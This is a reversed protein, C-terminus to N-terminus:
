IRQYVHTSRLHTPEETPETTGYFWSKCVKKPKIKQYKLLHMVHDLWATNPFGVLIEEKNKEFGNFPSNTPENKYAILPIHLDQIEPNEETEIIITTPSAQAISELIAFHDHVHYLLGCLFVTDTDQCIETNSEYDHLDILSSKWKQPDIQLIDMGEEALGISTKRVDAFTLFKPNLNMIMLAFMGYGCALDVVKKDKIYEANDLVIHQVRLLNDPTPAYDNSPCFDSFTMNPNYFIDSSFNHIEICEKKIIDPLNHFDQVNHLDPWSSDRVKQYSELFVLKSDETIRDNLICNKHGLYEFINQHPISSLINKLDNDSLGLVDQMSKLIKSRVSLNM